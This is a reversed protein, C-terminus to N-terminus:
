NTNNGGLGFWRRKIVSQNWFRDWAIDIGSDGDIKLIVVVVELMM